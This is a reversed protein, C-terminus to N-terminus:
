PANGEAASAPDSPTDRDASQPRVFMLISADAGTFLNLRQPLDGLDVEMPFRQQLRVWNTDLSVYPMVNASEKARSVGRSLSRVTGTHIRWPDSALRIYVKQGPLISHVYQEEVNAVVRWGTDTVIALLPDGVKLFDGARALFPAVVGAAPAVVRTQSLNYKALALEAEAVKVSSQRVTVTRRAAEATAIASAVAANATDLDREANNLDQESVSGSGVIAAIREKILQADAQKAKAGVIDADAVSVQEEADAVNAKAYEVNAVAKDVAIQFPQPDIIALLDGAKVPQNRRAEISVIRGEVQPAVGVVNSLVFGDWTYLVFSTVVYYLVFLVVAGSIVALSLHDRLFARM